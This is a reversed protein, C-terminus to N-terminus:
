ASEVIEHAVPQAAVEAETAGMVPVSVAIRTGEGPKSDVALRGGLFNVRERISILGLGTRDQEGPVFGRGRDAIQLSLDSDSASLSVQAATTHAHKVINRLGEQAIRFMCLAADPSLRAPVLDSQFAIAIAHQRSVDDCLSQIAPVLGLAELKFPHLRHSLLHVDTAISAVRGAISSAEPAVHGKGTMLEVDIALLALNQSLNDHLERALRKFELEQGTILRGALHQITRSSVRLASDRDRVAAEARIRDTVDTFTGMMRYATGDARRVASGSTQFWRISGDRHMVRHEIHYRRTSGDLCAQAAATTRAYDLPSVLQKWNVRQGNARPGVYGLIRLVEPDVYLEDTELTWDWVGVGGATTAMAYRAESMRLRKEARRQETVDRIVSLV